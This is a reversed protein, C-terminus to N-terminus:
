LTAEDIIGELIKAISQSMKQIPIGPFLGELRKWDARLFMVNLEGDEEYVDISKPMMSLLQKNLSYAQFAKSPNCVEIVKAIGTQEGVSNFKQQMDHIHVIKFGQKAAADEIRQLLVDIELSCKKLYIDKNM